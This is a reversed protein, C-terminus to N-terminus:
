RELLRLGVVGIVILGLCTLRAPSATEGFVAIGFAIVGVSGMGVWVSYATGVPLHRMPYSLLVLDLVYAALVFASPWFRTWNATYKLGVAWAIEVLGALVLVIWATTTVSM